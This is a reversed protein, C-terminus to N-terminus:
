GRLVETPDLRAARRAPLWGAAVGVAALTLIAAAITVPDRAELQFLLTGIFRTAWLTLAAGIALGILVLGTVRRLVLQVVGRADAGLAMRVAIESRRRNVSYSTVGYLGLAALLLALGGFFGALIAVLREQSVTAGIQDSYDRVSFALNPDVRILAAKLAAITTARDRPIHATLSVDSNPTALQTLPVYMVPVVGVRVSRYIADNVVGVVLYRELQGGPAMLEVRHGIPAAKGIFRRAFTENVVVVPETGKIDQASVDRGALLRMGYTDFWGPPVANLFTMQQQPALDPRDTVKVRSNWGRGSLPTMYSPSVRRVGPVAAAVDAVRNYLDLRGEPLVGTQGTEVNVIVLDDPTFGLPTTTLTRFTRVFLGAGIVLVLSLAVQAVV